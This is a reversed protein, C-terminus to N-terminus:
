RARQHWFLKDPKKVGFREKIERKSAVDMRLFRDDNAVFRVIKQRKVLASAFFYIFKDELREAFVGGCRDSKGRKAAVLVLNQEDSRAIM